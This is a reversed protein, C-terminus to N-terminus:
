GINQYSFYAFSAYNDSEAGNATAYMGVTCGTFGGAWETSLFHTTLKGELLIEESESRATYWLEHGRQIMTLRVKGCAVPASALVTPVAKDFKVAQLQMGNETGKLTLQVNAKESQVLVIGAEEGNAPTAYMQSDVRYNMTSQRIGLYSVPKLENMVGTGFHLKLQGDELRYMGEKPNHLTMVSMPLKNTHFTLNTNAERGALEGDTWIHPELPLEGTAYLKGEGVNFVPWDNEWTVQALFTERGTNTVGELKQMGLMVAYWNDNEDTVLDAHGVAHIPYNVGLHRHTFIPNGKFGEYPGGINRSRAVVVAHEPGTGGEANVVYYYGNRKYIHPGEAWVCNRLAGKWVVYEEGVLQFKELDLERIYIINDGFYKEDPASKTGIYYCKGDDDFFISPDIGYAEALWHPESWPGAPDTATVIFNGRYDVNTTIMYYTGNNYRITPAYIGGDHRFNGLPLNDERDLVNGIQKWHVLDKSAYIPVGPFYVFTSTVLYFTDGVRCISPDPNFGPMIPNKYTVM